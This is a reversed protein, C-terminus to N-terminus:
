RYGLFPYKLLYLAGSLVHLSFILIVWRLKRNSWGEVKWISYIEKIIAYFLVNLAMAPGWLFNNGKSVAGGKYDSFLVFVIMSAVFVMWALKLEKIQWNRKPYMLLFVLPGLISVILSILLNDSWVEWSEFPSLKISATSDSKGYYYVFQSLLTFSGVALISLPAIKERLNSKELLIFLAYAVSFGLFYNPKALIGLVVLVMSMILDSHVYNQSTRISYKFLGLIFPMAFVWTSNHWQTPSIQGLKMTATVGPPLNFMILMSFALIWVDMRRDKDVLVEYEQVYFRFRLWTFISLLGIAVVSVFFLNSSFGSALGLTLYYLFHPKMPISGELIDFHIEIHTPIDTPIVFTGIWMIIVA